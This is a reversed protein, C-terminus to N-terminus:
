KQEPLESKCGGLSDGLPGRRGGAGFRHPTLSTGDRLEFVDGFPSANTEAMRRSSGVVVNDLRHAATHEHEVVVAVAPRVDIEGVGRCHGHRQLFLGGAAREVVVIVVTGEGIDGVLGSDGRGAKRHASGDAVVVVVAPGVHNSM